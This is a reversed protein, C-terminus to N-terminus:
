CAILMNIFGLGARSPSFLPRRSSRSRPSGSPSPPSRRRRQRRQRRQRRPPRRSRVSVCVRVCPCVSPPRVGARVCESAARRGAQSGEQRSRAQCAGRQLWPGGAGPRPRALGATLAAPAAPPSQLEHGAQGRAPCAGHSPQAGLPPRHSSTLPSHRDQHTPRAAARGRGGKGERLDRM